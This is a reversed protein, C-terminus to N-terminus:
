ANYTGSISEPNGYQGAQGSVGVTYFRVANFRPETATHYIGSIGYPSGQWNNKGLGTQATGTVSPYTMLYRGAIGWSTWCGNGQSMGGVGTNQTCLAVVGTSFSVQSGPNVILAGNHQQVPANQYNVTVAPYIDQANNVINPM